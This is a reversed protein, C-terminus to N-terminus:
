MTNLKDMWEWVRPLWVLFTPLTPARLGYVMKMQRLRLVFDYDRVFEKSRRERERDREKAEEQM